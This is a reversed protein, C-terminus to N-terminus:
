SPDRLHEKFAPLGQNRKKNQKTKDSQNNFRNMKHDNMERPVKKKKLMGGM